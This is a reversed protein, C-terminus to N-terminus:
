VVYLLWTTAARNEAYTIMYSNIGGTEPAPDCVYTSGNMYVEVWCHHYYNGNNRNQVTGDITKSSYGMATLLFHYMSSYGYCNGQGEDWFKLAYYEEWNAFGTDTSAKVYPFNNVLYFYATRMNFGTYDRIIRCVIRDLRSDNSIHRLTGNDNFIYAEGNITVLGTQMVGSGNFHYYYGSLKLWSNTMPNGSGNLYYYKGSTKVWNNTVPNGSSNFYYYKGSIKAWNSTIPNGSANFYYYKGSIKRWANTVPNGSGNFYYYKGSIKHWANTVPNGNKNVYYYAGNTKVWSNTLAYGGKGVYYTKGGSTVWRSTVNKGDAGMYYYKGGSGPAFANKCLTGAATYYYYTGNIQDWGQAHPKITFTASAAGEFAGTGTITVTATGPETNNAYAVTYDTNPALTEGDLVVTPSPTLAFGTYTQDQVTVTAASIDIPAPEPETIPDQESARAIQATTPLVGACSFAALVLVLALKACWVATSSRKKTNAMAM